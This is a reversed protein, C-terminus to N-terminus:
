NRPERPVNTAPEVKNEEAEEGDREKKEEAKRAAIM